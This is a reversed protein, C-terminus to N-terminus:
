ESRLPRSSAMQDLGRGSCPWNEAPQEPGEGLISIAPVQGLTEGDEHCLMKGSTQSPNGGDQSTDVADRGVATCRQSSGPETRETGGWRARPPM